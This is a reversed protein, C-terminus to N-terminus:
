GFISPENNIRDVVTNFASAPRRKVRGPSITPVNTSVGAGTVNAIGEEKLFEDVEQLEQEFLEQRNEILNVLNLLREESIPYMSGEASEKLLLLAAVINKFKSDGGPLKLLLRKLNFAVRHLYGYANKQDSTRLDRHRILVNGDKDIIGLKYADSEIFPTTLIKLFKYTYLNDFLSM